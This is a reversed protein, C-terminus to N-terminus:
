PSPVEASALAFEILTRTGEASALDFINRFESDIRELSTDPLQQWAEHIPDADAEKM